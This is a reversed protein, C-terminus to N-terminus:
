VEFQPNNQGISDTINGQKREINRSEIFDVQGLMPLKSYSVSVEAVNDFALCAYHFSDTDRMCLAFFHFSFNYRKKEYLDNSDM